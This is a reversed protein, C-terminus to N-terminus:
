GERRERCTVVQFAGYAAFGLAVLTLLVVGYPQGVLTRLAADLGAAQDPQSRVGAIIVLIGLIAFAAGRAIYGAQGLLIVPERSVGEIKELFKKTVGEYVQYGAFAIVALGVIVVLAQGAPAGLLKATWDAQKQSSDGGGGGLALRASQVGLTLGILAKAGASVRKFVQKKGHERTFGIAAEIAQWVAYAFLGLAMVGLLTKGFPQEALKQLAGSNDAQESSGGFAIQLCIWALLLYVVGIAAVGFQGLTKVWPSEAADVAARGADKARETTGSM